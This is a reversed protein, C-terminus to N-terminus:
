ANLLEAAIAPQSSLVHHIYTPAEHCLVRAHSPSRAPPSAQPRTFPTLLQPVERTHHHSTLPEGTLRSSPGRKKPELDAGGDGGTSSTKASLAVTSTDEFSGM